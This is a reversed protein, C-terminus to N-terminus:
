QIKKLMQKRCPEFFKSWAACDIENLAKCADVSEHVLTKFNHFSPCLPCDKNAREACDCFFQGNEYLLKALASISDMLVSDYVQIIQAAAGNMANALIALCQLATRGDHNDIALYGHACAEFTDLDGFNNQDFQIVNMSIEDFSSATCQSFELIVSSGSLTEHPSCPPDQGIKKKDNHIERNMSFEMKSDHACSCLSCDVLDNFVDLDFCYRPTAIDQAM